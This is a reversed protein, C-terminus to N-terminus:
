KEGIDFALFKANFKIGSMAFSFARGVFVMLAVYAQVISVVTSIAWFTRDRESSSAAFSLAFTALFKSLLISSLIMRRLLRSFNHRILKFPWM